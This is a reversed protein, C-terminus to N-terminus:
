IIETPRFPKVTISESNSLSTCAIHFILIDVVMFIIFGTCNENGKSLVQIM